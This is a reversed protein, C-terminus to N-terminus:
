CFALIDAQTIRLHEVLQWITHPSGAPRAGRLEPPVGEVVKEFSVHADEWRLLALVHSRLVENM